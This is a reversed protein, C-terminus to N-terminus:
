NEDHQCEITTKLCNMRIRLLHRVMDESLDWRHKGALNKLHSFLRECSAESVPFQVIRRGLDNLYKTQFEIKDSIHRQKWYKYPPINIFSDIPSRLVEHFQASLIDIPFKFANGLILLGRMAGNYIDRYFNDNHDLEQMYKIGKPTFAFSVTIIPWEESILLRSTIKDILKKAYMNRTNHAIRFNEYTDHLAPFINTMSEGNAEVIALFRGFIDLCYNLDIWNVNELVTIHTLSRAKLVFEHIEQYNNAIFHVLEHISYWRTEVFRPAKRLISGAPAGDLVRKLDQINNELTPESKFFDHLGLNLTHALCPIRLIPIGCKNQVSYEKIENVAAIENSANDNTIATVTLGRKRLEDTVKSLENAISHADQKKMTVLTLFHVEGNYFLNISFWLKGLKSSGDCALSCYDGDSTRPFAAVLDMSHTAMMDKLTKISPLKLNQSISTLFKKINVNDLSRFSISKVAVWNLLNEISAKSLKINEPTSHDTGSSGFYIDPIAIPLKVKL